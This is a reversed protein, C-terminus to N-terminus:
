HNNYIRETKIKISKKLSVRLYADAMPIKNNLEEM